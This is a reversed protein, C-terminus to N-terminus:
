GSNAEQECATLTICDNYLHNFKIHRIEHELTKKREEISLSENIFVIYDGRKMVTVGKVMPLSICYVYVDDM